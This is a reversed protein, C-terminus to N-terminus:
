GKQMSMMVQHYDHAAAEDGQQESFNQQIFMATASLKALQM